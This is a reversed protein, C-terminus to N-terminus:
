CRERESRVQQRQRRHRHLGGQPQASGVGGGALLAAEADVGLLLHGEGVVCEEGRLRAVGPRRSRGIGMAPPAPWKGESGDSPLAGARPSPLHGALCRDERISLRICLDSNSIKTHSPIFFPTPLSM